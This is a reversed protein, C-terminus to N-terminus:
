RLQVKASCLAGSFVCVCVFCQAVCMSLCGTGLRSFYMPGSCAFVMLQLVRPGLNNRDKEQVHNLVEPQFELMETITRPGAKKHSNMELYDQRFTFNM